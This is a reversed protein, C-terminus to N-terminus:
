KPYLHLIALCLNYAAYPALFTFLAEIYINSIIYKYMCAYFSITVLELYHVPSDTDDLNYHVQIYVHYHVCKQQHHCTQVMYMLFHDTMRNVDNMQRYSIPFTAVVVVPKM